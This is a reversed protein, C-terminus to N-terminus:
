ALDKQRNVYLQLEERQRQGLAQNYTRWMDACPGTNFIWHCTPKPPVPTLQTAQTNQATATMGLSLLVVFLAYGIQKM